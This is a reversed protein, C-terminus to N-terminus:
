THDVLRPSFMSQFGLKHM